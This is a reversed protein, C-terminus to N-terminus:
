DGNERDFEVEYDASVEAIEPRPDSRLPRKEIISFGETEEADERYWLMLHSVKEVRNHRLWGAFNRAPQVNYHYKGEEPVGLAEMPRTRLVLSDDDFPQVVINRRYAPSFEFYQEANSVYLLGISLGLSELTEAIDLMADDGTLDGRIPFVRDREWLGRVFEYQKRSTLFTPIEAEEYQEATTRLRYFISDSAYELVQDLEEVRKEDDYAERIWARIEDVNSERFQQIFSEPDDNREFVLEYIRHVNQIQADFDVLLLIPSKAWGAFLYNQDTGVGMLVGGQGRIQSRYLHHHRENSVWYHSDRTIDRNRPDFEIDSLAREFEDPLSVAPDLARQVATPGESEADESEGASEEGRGSQEEGASSSESSRESEGDGTASARPLDCSVQLGVVAVLAAVFGGWSAYKEAM